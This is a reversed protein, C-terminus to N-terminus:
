VQRLRGQPRKTLKVVGAYHTIQSLLESANGIVIDRNAVQTLHERIEEFARPELPQVKMIADVFFRYGLQTPIRGASTHPSSVLGLDELDAMVNRITAPSLDLSSERSLTRSGVPQGDIVYRRILAHLLKEARENLTVPTSM